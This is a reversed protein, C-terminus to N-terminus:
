LCSAFPLMRLMVGHKDLWDAFPMSNSCRISEFKIGAYGDNKTWMVRGQGLVTTSSRLNFAFKLTTDADLMQASRVSMGRESLDATLVRYQRGDRFITVPAILRHRLFRRRQPAPLQRSLTLLDFVRSTSIPKQVVFNAGAALAEREEWPNGACVVIVPSRQGQSEKIKRIFEGAGKLAADIVIGHVQRNAMVDRACTLSPTSDLRTGSERWARTFTKLTSYDSSVILLELNALVSSPVM